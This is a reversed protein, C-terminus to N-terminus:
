GVPDGFVVLGARPSGARGGPEREVKGFPEGHPCVTDRPQCVHLPNPRDNEFCGEAPVLKLALCSFLHFWVGRGAPSPPGAAAPPHPDPASRM